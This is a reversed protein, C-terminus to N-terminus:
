DAEIGVTTSGSACIGYWLDQANGPDCTLTASMGAQLEAGANSTTVASSNGLYVTTSGLNQITPSKGQLVTVILTATTGVTVQSNTEGM